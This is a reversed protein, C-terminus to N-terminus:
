TFYKLVVIGIADKTIPIAPEMSFSFLSFVSKSAPDMLEILSLRIPGSAPIPSEKNQPTHRTTAAPSAIPSALAHFRAQVM